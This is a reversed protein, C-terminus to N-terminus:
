VTFLPMLVLTGTGRCANTKAMFAQRPPPVGALCGGRVPCTRGGGEQGAALVGASGLAKTGRHGSETQSPCKGPAQEDQLTVAGEAAVTAHLRGLCEVAPPDNSLRLAELLPRICM